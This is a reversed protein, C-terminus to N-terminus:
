LRGRSPIYRPQPIYSSEYASLSHSKKPTAIAMPKSPTSCSSSTYRHHHDDNAAFSYHCQQSTSQETWWANDHVNSHPSPSAVWSKVFEIMKLSFAPSTPTALSSTSESSPSSSLVDADAHHFTSGTTSSPPKSLSTLLKPRSRSRYSGSPSPSSRRSPSITTHHHYVHQEDTPPPGQPIAAAWQRIYSTDQVYHYVPQEDYEDVDIVDYDDVFHQTSSAPRCEISCYPNWPGTEFHCQCTLCYDLDMTILKFTQLFFFATM